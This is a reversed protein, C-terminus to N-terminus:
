ESIPLSRVFQKSLFKMKIKKKYIRNLNKKNKPLLCEAVLDLCESNESLVGFQIKLRLNSIFFVLLKLYIFVM